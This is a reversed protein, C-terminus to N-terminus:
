WFVKVSHHNYIEEKLIFKRIGLIFRLVYDDYNVDRINVPFEKADESHSVKISLLKQNVSDFSWENLSFFKGDWCANQFKRALKYFIPKQNKIRLLIDLGVAPITHQFFTLFDHIQYNERYKFKPYLICYKSPYERTWKLTLDGLRKWTIPNMQGSTCNYIKLNPRSSRIKKQTSYLNYM